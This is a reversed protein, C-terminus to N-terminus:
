ETGEGRSGQCPEQLPVMLSQLAADWGEKFGKQIGWEYAVATGPLIAENAWQRGVDSAELAKLDRLKQITAPDAPEFSVFPTADRTLPKHGYVEVPTGDQRLVIWMVQKVDKPLTNSDSM